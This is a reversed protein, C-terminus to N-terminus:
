KKMLYLKGWKQIKFNIIIKIVHIYYCEIYFYIIRLSLRRPINIATKLKRLNVSLSGPATTSTIM